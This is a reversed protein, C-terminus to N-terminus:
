HGPSATNRHIVHQGVYRLTHKIKTQITGRFFKAQGAFNTSFSLLDGFVSSYSLATDYPYFMNLMIVKTSEFCYWHAATARASASDVM